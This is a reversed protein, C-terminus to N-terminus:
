GTVEEHSERINPRIMKDFLIEYEIHSSVSKAMEYFEALSATSIELVENRTRETERAWHGGLYESFWVGAEHPDKHWWNIHCHYCLCKINRVDFLFRLGKSKPIIHSGHSNKTGVRKGCKLCTNGDRQKALNKAIDELRNTYWSRKKLRPKKQRQKTNM